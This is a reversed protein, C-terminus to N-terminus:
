YIGFKLKLLYMSLHSTIKLSYKRDKICQVRSITKFVIYIMHSNYRNILFILLYKNLFLSYINTFKKVNKILSVKIFSQYGPCYIM